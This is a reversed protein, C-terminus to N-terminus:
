QVIALAEGRAFRDVLEQGEVAGIALVQPRALWYVQSAPPFKPNRQLLGVMEIMEPIREAVCTAWIVVHRHAASGELFEAFLEPVIGVVLAM